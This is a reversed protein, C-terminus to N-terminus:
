RPLAERIVPFVDKAAEKGWFTDLHGYGELERFDACGSDFGNFFASTRKQGVPEFMRNESGGIFRYKVNELKPPSAIYSAPVSPHRPESPVIHGFRCSEAVQNTLSFPTYGLERSSWDHVRPDLQVHRLLVDPGAGYMFNSIECPRNGCRKRSLGSIKSLAAGAPTQARIGWQADGGVGSRNVIPLTARQKFWTRDPVQFFLSIASSVVHSVSHEPLFGAVASMLFSVSGQCHVIACLREEGTQRLVTEVARPHDFMAAQDLTYSNNPLDISARWSELWVDFGHALLFDVITRGVPQGYFMEPRV